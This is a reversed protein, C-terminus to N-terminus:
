GNALRKKMAEILGDDPNEIEMDGVKIRRVKKSTAYDKIFNLMIPLAQVAITAALVWTPASGDLNRREFIRVPNGSVQEFKLKIANIVEKDGSVMIKSEPQNM